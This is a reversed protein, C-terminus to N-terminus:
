WRNHKPRMRSHIFVVETKRDSTIDSISFYASTREVDLIAVITLVMNSYMENSRNDASFRLNQILEISITKMM